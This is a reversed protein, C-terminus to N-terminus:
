EANLVGDVVGLDLLPQENRMDYADLLMEYTEMDMELVVPCRSDRDNVLETTEQDTCMEIVPQRDEYESVRAMGGAVLTSFVFFNQVTSEFSRPDLIAQLMPLVEGHQKRYKYEEVLKNRMIGGYKQINNKSSDIESGQLQKAQNVKNTEDQQRVTVKRARVPREKEVAGILHSAGRAVRGRRLGIRGLAGIRKMEPVSGPDNSLDTYTGLVADFVADDQQSVSAVFKTVLAQMEKLDITGPEALAYKKIHKTKKASIMKLLNADKVLARRDDNFKSKTKNAHEIMSLVYEGDNEDVVRGFEEYISQLEQQRQYDDEDPVDPTNENSM